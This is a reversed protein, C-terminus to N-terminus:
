SVSICNHKGALSSLLLNFTFLFNEQLVRMDVTILTPFNCLLSFSTLFACVISFLLPIGSLVQVFVDRTAKVSVLKGPEPRHKLFLNLWQNICRIKRQRNRRFATLM